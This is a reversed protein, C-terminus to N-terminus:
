FNSIYIKFLEKIHCNKILIIDNRVDFILSVVLSFKNPNLSDKQLNFVPVFQVEIQGRKVKKSM